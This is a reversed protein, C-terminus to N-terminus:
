AAVEAALELERRMEGKFRARAFRTAHARIAARDWAIDESRLMARALARADEGRSLVGTVGDVVSDLAGGEARAVVPTGCAMAEIATIGFDEVGPYLLSRARGMRARLEDD